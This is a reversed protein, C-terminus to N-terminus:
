FVPKTKKVGSVSVFGLVNNMIAYHQQKPIELVTVCTGSVSSSAVDSIYFYLLSLM